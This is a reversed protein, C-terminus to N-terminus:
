AESLAKLWSPGQALRAPNSMSASHTVPAGRKSGNKRMFGNGAMRDVLDHRVKDRPITYNFDDELIKMVDREKWVLLEEAGLQRRATSALIGLTRGGRCPPLGQFLDNDLKQPLSLLAWPDEKFKDAHWRTFEKALASAKPNEFYFCNYGLIAGEPTFDKKLSEHVGGGTTLVFKTSKTLGAAHAQKMFIPADGSWFSCMLLDPKAQQISVIHSTFDTVGLKPFLEVVPKVDMGYRKLVAQYSQWCDHGYSYDNNIGAITKVGKFYKATLIGAVIALRKQRPKM